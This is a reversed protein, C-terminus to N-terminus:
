LFAVLAVPSLPERHILQITLIAKLAQPYPRLHFHGRLISKYCHKTPMLQISCADTGNGITKQTFLQRPEITSGYLLGAVDNAILEVASGMFINRTVDEHHRVPRM